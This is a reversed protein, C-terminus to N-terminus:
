LENLLYYKSYYNVFDLEILEAFYNIKERITMDKFYNSDLEYECLVFYKHLGESYFTIYDNIQSLSDIIQTNLKNAEYKTQKILIEKDNKIINVNSCKLNDEDIKKSTTIENMIFKVTDMSKLSKKILVITINSDNEIIFNQGKSIYKNLNDDLKKFDNIEKTKYLFEINHDILINDLDEKKLENVNIKNKIKDYSENNFIYYDITYNYLLYNYTELNEFIKNKNKQINKEIINKRQLDYKINKLIINKELNNFIKQLIINAEKNIYKSFLLNYSEETDVPDIKKELYFQNFIIVSKLDIKATQFSINQNFNLLKLYKLRNEIDITSYYNDKLEFVIKSNNSSNIETTYFVILFIISYFFNINILKIV